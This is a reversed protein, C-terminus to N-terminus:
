VYHKLIYLVISEVDNFVKDACIEIWPYLEVSTDQHLLLIPIKNEHAIAIEMATGISQSNWNAILLDSKRVKHTELRFIEKETQIPQNSISNELYDFHDVPNFCEIRKCCDELREKVYVRWDYYDEACLDKIGGSLFINLSNM